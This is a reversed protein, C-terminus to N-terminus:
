KNMIECFQSAVSFWLDIDMGAPRTIRVFVMRGNRDVIGLCHDDYGFM